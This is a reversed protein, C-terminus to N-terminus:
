LNQKKWLIMPHKNARNITELDQFLLEFCYKKNEVNSLIGNVRDVLEKEKGEKKSM